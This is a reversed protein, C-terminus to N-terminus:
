ISYKLDHEADHVCMFQKPFIITYTHKKVLLKRKRKKKKKKKKELFAKIFFNNNFFWHLLILIVTTLSFLWFSLCLSFNMLSNWHSILYWKKKIICFVYSSSLFYLDVSMGFSYMFSFIYFSSLLSLKIRHSTEWYM